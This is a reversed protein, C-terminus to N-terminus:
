SYKNVFKSDMVIRLLTSSSELNLVPFHPLYHVGGQWRKMEEVSLPRAAGAELMWRIEEDYETKLGQSKVRKEINTKVAKVQKYNNPQDQAEERLPYSVRIKGRERELFMSDQM